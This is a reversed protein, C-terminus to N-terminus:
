TTQERKGELAKRINRAVQGVRAPKKPPLKLRSREIALEASLKELCTQCLKKSLSIAPAGCRGCKISADGSAINRVVGLDLMRLVCERSVGTELVVDEATLNPIRALATRVKEYDAEEDPECKACVPSQGKSFMAHCRVCKALPM